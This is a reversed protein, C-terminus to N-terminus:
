LSLSLSLSLSLAPVRYIHLNRYTGEKWTYAESWSGFQKRRVSQEPIFTQYTTYDLLATHQMKIPNDILVTALSSPTLAGPLGFICYIDHIRM